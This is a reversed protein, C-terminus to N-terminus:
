NHDRGIQTKNSIQLQYFTITVDNQEAASPHRLLIGGPPRGLVPTLTTAGAVAILDLNARDVNFGITLSFPILNLNKNVQCPTLVYTARTV